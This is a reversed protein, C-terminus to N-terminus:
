SRTRVLTLYLIEGDGNLGVKLQRVEICRYAPHVPRQHTTERPIHAATPRPSLQRVHGCFDAIMRDLAHAFAYVADVVFQIKSERM